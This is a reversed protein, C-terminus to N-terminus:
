NYHIARQSQLAFYIDDPPSLSYRPNEDACALSGTGHDPELASPTSRADEHNMAAGNHCGSAPDILVKKTM